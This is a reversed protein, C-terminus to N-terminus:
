LGLTSSELLGREQTQVQHKDENEEDLWTKPWFERPLSFRLELKEHASLQPFQSLVSQDEVGLRYLARAIRKEGHSSKPSVSYHWRGEETEFGSFETWPQGYHLGVLEGSGARMRWSVPQSGIHGHCEVWNLGLRLEFAKM